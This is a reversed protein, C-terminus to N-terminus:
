AAALRSITSHSVNFTQAIQTVPEGDRDVPDSKM